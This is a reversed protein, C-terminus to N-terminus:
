SKEYIEKRKVKLYNEVEPLLAIDAYQRIAKDLEKQTKCQHFTRLAKLKRISGGLAM